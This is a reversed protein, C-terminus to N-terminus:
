AAMDEEVHGWFAQLRCQTQHVFEKPNVWGETYQCASEIWLGSDLLSEERLMRLAEESLRQRVTEAQEGTYPLIIALDPVDIRAPIDAKRIKSRLRPALRAMIGEFLNLGHQRIFLQSGGVRIMV